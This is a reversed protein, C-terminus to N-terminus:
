IKNPDCYKGVVFIVNSATEKWLVIKVSASKKLVARFIYFVERTYVKAASRELAELQTQMVPFGFNSKFDAEVKNDRIAELCHDFHQVFETLNHSSVVYRGVQSHLGECRSTTRLGAFFNGRM